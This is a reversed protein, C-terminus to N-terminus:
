SVVQLLLHRATIKTNVQAFVDSSVALAEFHGQQSYLQLDLAHEGIATACRLTPNAETSIVGFPINHITFPSNSGMNVSYSM